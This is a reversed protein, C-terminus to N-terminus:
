ARALLASFEPASWQGEVLPKHLWGYNLLSGSRAFLLRSARGLPGMGMVALPFDFGGLFELLRAVDSPKETRTAVKVIDAGADRAASATRRLAELSPTRSFDHSSAIVLCCQERAQTVLRRMARLSRAEIDIAVVADLNLYDAYVASRAADPLACQGGEDERRLTLIAPVPLSSIRGVSPRRSLLDLRVEALDIGGQAASPFGGPTHITGVVSPLKLSISRKRKNM